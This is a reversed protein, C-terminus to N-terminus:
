PSQLGIKAQPQAATQRSDDVVTVPVAALRRVRRVLIRALLDSIPGSDSGAMVIENAGIQAAFSALTRAEDGQVTHLRYRLGSAELIPRAKALIAEAESRRWDACAEASVFRRVYGDFAPQVNVVHVTRLDSNGRGAVAARLAAQAARSGDFPVLITHM